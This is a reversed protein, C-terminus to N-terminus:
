NGPLAYSYKKKSRSTDDLFEEVNVGEFSPVNM